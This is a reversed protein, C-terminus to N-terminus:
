IVILVMINIMSFLYIEYLLRDAENSEVNLESADNIKKEVMEKIVDSLDRAMSVGAKVLSRYRMLDAAVESELKNILEDADVHVRSSDVM